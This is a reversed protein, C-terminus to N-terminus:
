VPWQTQNGNNAVVRANRQWENRAGKIKYEAMENKDEKQWDSWQCTWRQAINKDGPFGRGLQEAQSSSGWGFTVMNLVKM